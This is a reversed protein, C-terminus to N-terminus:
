NPSSKEPYVTPAIHSSALSPKPWKLDNSFIAITVSTCQISSATFNKPKKTGHGTFVKLLPSKTSAFAQTVSQGDLPKYSGHYIVHAVSPVYYFTLYIGTVLLIVFSYLAIEGLMFSWHDPFIKDMFTRGGKAVGLRDDLENIAQGIKGYPGEAAKKARKTTPVTVDSM